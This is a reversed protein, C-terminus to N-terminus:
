RRHRSRTRRQRCSWVLAPVDPLESRAASAGPQLADLEALRARYATRLCTTDACANRVTRLWQRQNAVLCANAMTLAERAAAFYRALQNTTEDLARWSLQSEAGVQPAFIIAPREPHAAALQALRPAFATRDLPLTEPPEM